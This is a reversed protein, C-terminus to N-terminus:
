GSDIIISPNMLQLQEIIKDRETQADSKLDEVNLEIDGFPTNITRYASRTRAIWIAVDCYALRLFTDEFEPRITRFDKTHFREYVILRKGGQPTPIIRFFNPPIFDFTESFISYKFVTMSIENQLVYKEVDELTGGVLGIPPMGSVIYGGADQFINVIDVIPCGDPDILRYKNPVETKVDESDLDVVLEKVDPCLKSFTRLTNQRIFELIQNDTYENPTYPIGLNTKVYNLVDTPSLM